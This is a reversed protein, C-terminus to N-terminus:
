ELATTNAALWHGIEHIINVTDYLFTQIFDMGPIPPLHDRREGLREYGFNAHQAIVTVVLISLLVGRIDM